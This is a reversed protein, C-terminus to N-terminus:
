VTCKGMLSNRFIQLVNQSQFLQVNWQHKRHFSICSAARLKGVIKVIKKNKQKWACHDEHRVRWLILPILKSHGVGAYLRLCRRCGPCSNGLPPWNPVAWDSFSSMAVWHHPHLVVVVALCSWTWNAEPRSWRSSSMWSWRTLWAPRRDIGISRSGVMADGPWLPRQFNRFM